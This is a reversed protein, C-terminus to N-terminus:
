LLVLNDRHILEPEFVYGLMAEIRDSAVGKISRIDAASYNSLGRAIETGARDRCSVPDGRGFEGRVESVGVALLSRGAERLVRVAGDDLVLDGRPKLTGALWRKRAALREEGPVFLTGIPEGRVLRTLIDPLRGNAVITATGSRAALRAASVKTRMGGRGWEGGDGAMAELAPDGATALPVLTANADSRPDATYLGEQDTLIVLVHADVLNSVLAALTDNDGFRIEDTAVTDNENIVPLVDLEVLTRLTTGANLYRDRDALDAHTLLIQATRLGHRQACTEYAQILGMQGVAAAAQLEHLATPRRKWGLRVVGEAISGSSVVLPEFGERKMAALDAVWRDISALNLGKGDNTALASGLKIVWRRGALIQARQDPM